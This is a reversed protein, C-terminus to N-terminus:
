KKKLVWRTAHDCGTLDHESRGCATTRGGDRRRAIPRGGRGGANNSRLALVCMDM